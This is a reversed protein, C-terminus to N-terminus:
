CYDADKQWYGAGGPALVASADHYQGSPTTDQYNWCARVTATGTTLAFWEETHGDLLVGNHYLVGTNSKFDLDDVSGQVGNSSNSVCNGGANWSSLKNVTYSSSSTSSRSYVLSANGCGHVGDPVYTKTNTASEVLGYRLRVVPGNSQHTDIGKAGNGLDTVTTSTLVNTGGANVVSSSGVLFALAGLIALVFAVVGAKKKTSM